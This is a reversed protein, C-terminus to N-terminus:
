RAVMAPAPENVFFRLDALSQCLHVGEPPAGSFAPASRGGIVLRTEPPLTEAFEALMRETDSAANMGGGLPSTISLWLLRPRHEIAARTLTSLPLDSGLSTARWGADLLTMEVMITALRYNDGTPAGGIARPATHPPTPLLRRLEYLVHGIIECARREHFVEISGCTWLDGIHHCAPALVEECIQAVSAGALYHNIVAVRCEESRGEALLGALREIDVGHEAQPDAAVRDPLGIAAPNALPRKTERLFQVVDSVALRRHGGPTKSTPILGQNCWRKLSSESVGISKAVQKPSLLQTM